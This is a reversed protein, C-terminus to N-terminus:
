ENAAAKVKAAEKGWDAFGQGVVFASVLGLLAYVFETPVDYGLKAVLSVITGAATVLFKKSNFLDKIATLM